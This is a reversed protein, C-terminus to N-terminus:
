IPGLQSTTYYNNPNYKGSGEIVCPIAVIPDSCRVNLGSVFGTTNYCGM